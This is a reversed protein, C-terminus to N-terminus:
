HFLLFFHSFQLTVTENPQVLSVAANHKHESSVFFASDTFGLPGFVDRELLKAHSLEQKRHEHMKDAIRNVLGLLAYGTNSYVPYTYPDAVWANDDLADLLVARSPIPVGSYPPPGKGKLTKPWNHTADGPPWDRGIGSMHSLLQRITISSITHSNPSKPSRMEEIYNSAPDDRSLSNKNTFPVYSFDISSGYLNLAGKERLIFTELATFLKSVSAIRYMSNRDVQRNSSTDNAKLPGHFAEVLSGQPTVVAIAVSDIDGTKRKKEYYKHLELKFSEIADRIQPHRSTSPPDVSFLNPLPAPCVDSAAVSPFPSPPPAVPSSLTYFTFYVMIANFFLSFLLITTYSRGGRRLGSTPQTSSSSNNTDRGPSKGNYNNDLTSYMLPTTNHPSRVSNPLPLYINQPRWWGRLSTVLSSMVM